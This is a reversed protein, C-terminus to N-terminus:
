LCHTAPLPHPIKLGTSISVMNQLLKVSQIQSCKAKTDIFKILGHNMTEVTSGGRKWEEDRGRKRKTEM